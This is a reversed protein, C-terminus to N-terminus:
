ARYILPLKGISAGGVANVAHSLEEFGRKGGTSLKRHQKGGMLYAAVLVHTPPYDKWYAMLENVEWLTLQKSRIFPGDPLPPSM